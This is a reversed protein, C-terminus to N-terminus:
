KIKTAFVKATTSPPRATMVAWQYMPHCKCNNICLYIYIHIQIHMHAHSHKYMNALLRLMIAPTYDNMWLSGEIKHQRTKPAFSQCKTHMRRWVCVFVCVDWVSTARAQHRQFQQRAYIVLPVFSPSFYQAADSRTAKMIKIQADRKSLGEGKVM